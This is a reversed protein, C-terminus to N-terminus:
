DTLRAAEAGYGGAALWAAEAPTTERGLAANRFPFRGFRRIVARHARAHLLYDRRAPLRAGILGVAADQDRLAESHEFPLYLWVRAPGTLRRDWGLAVARRALRLARADGAFAQARGRHLNRPFQDLLIVLACVGAPDGAWDAFAGLRAMRCALGFRARIRADLAPDPAFWGAPGTDELWFRLVDAPTAPMTAPDGNPTAGAM